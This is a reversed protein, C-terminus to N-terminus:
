PEELIPYLTMAELMQGEALSFTGDEQLLLVTTLSGDAELKGWANMGTCSPALIVSSDTNVMTVEEVDGIMYRLQVQVIPKQLDETVREVVMFKGTSNPRFFYSIDTTLSHVTGTKDTVDVTVSAHVSFLDESYRYYDDIVITEERILYSSVDINASTAILESYASSASDFSQRLKSITIQRISFLAEAKAAELVLQCEEDTIAESTPIEVSYNGTQPDQTLPVPRGFTDLVTVEPQVLLGTITQQLYRCGHLEDELYDEVLTHYTMTTYSDDLPVKNIYVTQGPLITVSVSQTRTFYLDVTGLTWSGSHDETAETPIMTFYGIEQGNHRVSFRRHPEFGTPVEVYTLPDDGIKAEMYTVFEDRGEFSTDEIGVMNYLLAWDPDAFLLEYIEDDVLDEQSIEYQELWASLPKMASRMILLVGLILVILIGYFMVARWLRGRRIEKKRLKDEM